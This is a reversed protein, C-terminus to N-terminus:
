HEQLKRNKRTDTEYRTKILLISNIVMFCPFIAIIEAAGSLIGNGEYYIKSNAKILINAQGAIVAIIRVAYWDKEVLSADVVLEAAIAEILEPNISV